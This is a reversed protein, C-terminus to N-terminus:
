RPGWLVVMWLYAYGLFVTVGMACKFLFWLLVKNYGWKRGQEEEELRDFYLKGVNFCHFRLSKRREAIM